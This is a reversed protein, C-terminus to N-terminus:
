ASFLIRYIKVLSIILGVLGILFLVIGTIILFASYLPRYSLILSIGVSMLYSLVVVFVTVFFITEVTRVIRDLADGQM